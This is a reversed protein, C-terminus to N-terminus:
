KKFGMGEFGTAADRCLAALEGKGFFGGFVDFIDGIKRCELWKCPLGHLFARL